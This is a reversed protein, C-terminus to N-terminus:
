KPQCGKTKGLPWEKIPNLVRFWRRTMSFILILETITPNSVFSMKLRIYGAVLLLFCVKWIYSHTMIGLKPNKQHSHTFFRGTLVPSIPKIGPDPLNGPSPCPLGSWYEQRSFEMSLPAQHAVTWLTAFLRVCSLSKM